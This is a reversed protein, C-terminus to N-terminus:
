QCQGVHGVSSIWVIGHGVSRRRMGLVAELKHGVAAEVFAERSLVM